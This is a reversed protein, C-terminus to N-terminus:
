RFLCFAEAAAQAAPTPSVFLPAAAHTPPSRRRVPVSPPPVSPSLPLLPFLLSNILFSPFSLPLSSSPFFSPPTSPFSSFLCLFLFVLVIIYCYISSLHVSPRQRLIFSAPSRATVSSLFSLPYPRGLVAMIPYWTRGYPGLHHGPRPLTPAAALRLTACHPNKRNLM